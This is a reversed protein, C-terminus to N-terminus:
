REKSTDRVHERAEIARVISPIDIVARQADDLRVIASIHEAPAAETIAHLSARPVRVYRELLDFALAIREKGMHIAFWASGLESPAHELVMALSYVPVVVGRIGALGLLTKDSTPVPVVRRQASVEAIDDMRLAYSVGAVRIALLDVTDPVADVVPSAFSRVFDARLARAMGELGDDSM